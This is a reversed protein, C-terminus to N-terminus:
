KKATSVLAAAPGAVATKAEITCEGCPEACCPSAKVASVKTACCADAKPASATATVAKGEACCVECVECCEDCGKACAPCPTACCSPTTAEKGECCSKKAELSCAGGNCKGGFIDTQSYLGYTAGGAIAGVLAIVKFM